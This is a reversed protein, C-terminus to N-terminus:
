SKWLFGGNITFKGIYLLPALNSQSGKKSGLRLKGTTAQEVLQGSIVRSIMLLM